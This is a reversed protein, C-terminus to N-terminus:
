WGEVDSSFAKPVEFPKVPRGLLAGRRTRGVVRHFTLLRRSALPLVAPASWPHHRSRCNISRMANSQRKPTMQLYGYRFHPSRLSFAAVSFLGFGARNHANGQYRSVSQGRMSAINGSASSSWSLEASDNFDM